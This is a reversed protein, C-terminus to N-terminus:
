SKETAFNFFYLFTTSMTSIKDHQMQMSVPKVRQTVVNNRSFLQLKIPVSYLCYVFLFIATQTQSRVLITFSITQSM